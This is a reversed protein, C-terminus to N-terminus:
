TKPKPTLPEVVIPNDTAVLTINKMEGKVFDMVEEPTYTGRDYAPLRRSRWRVRCAGVDDADAKATHKDKLEGNEGQHLIRGKCGGMEANVCIRSERVASAIDSKTRYNINEAPELLNALM